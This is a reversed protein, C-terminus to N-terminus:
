GPGARTGSIGGYRPRHRDPDLLGHGCRERHRLRGRACTRRQRADPEGPKVDRHVVGQGHAADLARAAEELWSFVRRPPQAGETRLVDDLSGGGLYEMVIYPRGNHDGVDYIMVTNHEGSLRAAARAERTFRERVADEQAYRDALIKVAVERGLMSDTARYIDGM